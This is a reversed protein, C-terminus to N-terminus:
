AFSGNCVGTFQYAAELSKLLVKEINESTVKLADRLIVPVAVCWM